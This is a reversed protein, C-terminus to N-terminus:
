TAPPPPPNASAPCAPWSAPRSSRWCVGSPPLQLRQHAGGRRRAAGPHTGAFAARRGLNMRRTTCRQGLAARRAWTPMPSCRARHRGRHRDLRRGAHRRHASVAYLARQAGDPVRALTEPQAGQFGLAMLGKLGTTRAHHLAEGFDIAGPPPPWRPANVASHLVQLNRASGAAPSTAKAPPPRPRTTSTIPIPHNRLAARSAPGPQRILHRVDRVSRHRQAGPARAAKM